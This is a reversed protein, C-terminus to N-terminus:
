RSVFFACMETASRGDLTSWCATAVCSWIPTPFAMSLADFRNVAVTEPPDITPAESAAAEEMDISPAVAVAAAEPDAEKDTEEEMEEEAEEATGAFAGASSGSSSSRYPSTSSPDSPRLSRRLNRKPGVCAKPNSACLTNAFGGGQGVGALTRTRM